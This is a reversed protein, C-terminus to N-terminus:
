GASPSGLGAAWPYYLYANTTPAGTVRKNMFVNNPRYAIPIWPLQVVSLQQIQVTLAARKVPDPEALAQAVLSDIKADAYGGYNAAGGTALNVYVELPDAVDAYWDTYLLDVHDPNSEKYYDNSPDFLLTYKDPEIDRIQVDLGISKGAAQVALALLQIPPDVSSSVIWIPRTQKPASAVLAKARTLDYSVPPLAAAAQALVQRAPGQGWSMASVITQAPEGRGAYAAKLYGRRDLALSLAQRLRVDKLPGAFNTVILSTVSTQPGFSLTGSSAAKLAPVGADPVGFTGDVAGTLLANTRANADPLFTFSISRTKAAHSTDWYGNFKTLEISQGTKWATLSFPGTCDVLGTATGYVRDKAVTSEVGKALMFAKSDVTGQATAMVQNFVADAQKLKVTVQHPGSVSISAVNRYFGAWYSGTDAGTNRRLSYAVDDPTLLTGDHFHVGQRITYVWTLPDPNTFATALGPHVGFQSDIRLLSECVNALVTNPPYDFTTTYDLNDPEAYLAWTVHDLPGLAPPTDVSLQDAVRQPSAKSSSSTCAALALSVVTVAGITVLSARSAGRMRPLSM